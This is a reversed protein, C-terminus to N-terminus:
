ADSKSDGLDTFCFWEHPSERIAWEIERGLASVAEELAGRRDATRAVRIVPRVVSRYTRRGTRFFFVPVIAADATRALAATGIPLPMRMGCVDIEISRGGSRPRDGQLAVIEGRRLADLLEIALHPDEGAFHTRYGERRHKSLLEEVFAQAESDIERERVIHCTRGSSGVSFASALEWNGIHATVM